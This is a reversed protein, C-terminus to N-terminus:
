FNKLFNLLGWYTIALDRKSFEEAIKVYHGIGRLSQPVNFDM